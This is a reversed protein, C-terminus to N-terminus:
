KQVAWRSLKPIVAHALDYAKADTFGLKSTMHAISRSIMEDLSLDPEVFAGSRYCLTCYECADSGDAKTGYFGEGIPLGCSQCRPRETM